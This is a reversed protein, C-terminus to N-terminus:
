PKSVQPPSKPLPVSETKWIIESMGLRPSAPDYVYYRVKKISDLKPMLGDIESIEGIPVHSDLIVTLMGTKDSGTAEVLGSLPARGWPKGGVWYLAQGHVERVWFVYSHAESGIQDRASGSAVCFGLTAPLLLLAARRVRM